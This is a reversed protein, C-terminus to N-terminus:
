RGSEKRWDRVAPNDGEGTAGKVVDLTEEANAGTAAAGPSDHRLSRIAEISEVVQPARAATAAAATQFQQSKAQARGGFYFSVIAGLLWWLPEPVLALGAMREGFWVPDVMAAVFLGLTGIAMAPRPIRNVGDILRNFWGKGGFESSMQDLAAVQVQAGRKDAAEANPRFVEAVDRVVNREGGFLARIMDIVM